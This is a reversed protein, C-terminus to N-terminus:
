RVVGKAQLDRWTKEKLARAEEDRSRDVDLLSEPFLRLLEERGFFHNERDFFVYWGLVGTKYDCVLNKTEDVHLECMRSGMRRKKGIVKLHGLNSVMVRAGTDPVFVWMETTNMTKAKGQNLKEAKDFM